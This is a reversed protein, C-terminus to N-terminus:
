KALEKAFIYMGTVFLITSTGASVICYQCISKIVFLMLFVLFLSMVFGVITGYSAYKIIKKNGSTLYAVSLIIFALYYFSGLLSVPIGAVESYESTLVVECGDTTCPPIGGSYHEVTLYTADAFGIASIILLIIATIKLYRTM